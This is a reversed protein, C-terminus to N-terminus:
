APNRRGQWLGRVMQSATRTYPEWFAGGEIDGLLDQYMPEM